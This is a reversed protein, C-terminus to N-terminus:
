MKLLVRMLFLPNGIFYRKFLRKPEQIFRYFWELKLKFYIDPTIKSNGSVYEFVAGGTLAVNFDIKNMNESLWKEQVPMGMGLILLNPKKSNIDKLTTHLDDENEFYGNRLGVIRLNPYKTNLVNAAEKITEQSSGILYYSLEHKECFESLDWIWRNYTIKEKIHIGCLKGALRVGDGDCFNIYASNLLDRFDRNSYAINMAHVNVNLVLKRAMDQKAANLIANNLEQSSLNTIRVGLLEAIEFDENM